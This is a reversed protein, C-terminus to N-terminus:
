ATSQILSRMGIMPPMMSFVITARVMRVRPVSMLEPTGIRSAKFMTRSVHVLM